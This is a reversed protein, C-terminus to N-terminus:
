YLNINKLNLLGVAFDVTATTNNNKFIFFWALLMIGALTGASAVPLQIFAFIIAAIVFVVMLPKMRKAFETGFETANASLPKIFFLYLLHICAYIVPFFSVWGLYFTIGLYLLFLWFNLIYRIIKNNELETYTTFSLLGQIYGPISLAFSVVLMVCLSLQTFLGFLAWKIFYLISDGADGNMPTVFPKVNTFYLNLLKSGNKYGSMQTAQWWWKMMWLITKENKAAPTNPAQNAVMCDGYCYNGKDPYDQDPNINLANLFNCCTIWNFVAIEALLKLMDMGYDFFATSSHPEENDIEDMTGTGRAHKINKLNM